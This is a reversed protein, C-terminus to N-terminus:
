QFRKGEKEKKKLNLIMEFSLLYDYYYDIFTYIVKKQKM